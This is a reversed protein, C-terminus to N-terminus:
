RGGLESTLRRVTDYAERDTAMREATRRCAHMVTTHNRGGFERGIAPLTQDTLERALYMAIQRPWAVPAARSTSLLDDLSLGFAECTHQQIDRVSFRRQRTGPYLGALVESALEATVPRGTLSGYAVVRILAGELARINSDVRDAILDVADLDVGDLADQQVRKRLITRRTGFDPLRVDTVLGAEFRERLRDELADLDRPLRDSTLVLQAGAGHLANFTHFFEQETRAKSQLFQVDDVLLVDVGRYAAKFDELAGTHLAGVFHDTFAEVTTYVVTMGDGHEALYNGISHLLHTKGLGPPGCIFLPNYALGPMEAVALAAGHALRNADGIVFQDFTYRPNLEAGTFVRPAAAPREPQTGATIVKVRAHAGLVAKTCGALLRAFSAEVWARSEAPAEIVLTDDEMQRAALPELWLQWTSDGVARRLEDRIRRWALQVDVDSVHARSRRRRLLPRPE